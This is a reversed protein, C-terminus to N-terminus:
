GSSHAVSEDDGLFTNLMEDASEKRLPDLRVQTYYTKSGWSHSYEPRYTVLLLLKATGISDALMNLFAQTEEDIWHLDEFVVMLPQNQSERLLVRKLAALIRQRRIQADMGALPDHGETLGLLGFLYPLAHELKRDLALVKGTVKERRIRTDDEPAIRFYSHLLDIVPQFASAKGHSVSFVELVMWGSQNRAKFEYLLRSKGVGPEAVVCILRGHGAKAMEAARAIAEMETGRGVFRTLGLRTSLQFHTRLPGPGTVEYVNLPDSVGKVRTPGLPKFLFYGECLKRISETAAISGVPALAQM